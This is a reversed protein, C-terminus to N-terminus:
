FPYLLLKAKSIHLKTTFKQEKEKDAAAELKLEQVWESLVSSYSRGPARMGAPALGKDIKWFTWVPGLWRRFFQYQPRERRYYLARIM